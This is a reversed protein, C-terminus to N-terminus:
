DDSEYRKLVADGWLEELKYFNRIDERFVHVVVDFYDILIWESNEYGERHSPKIYCNKQVIELVNDYIADVQTSSQADCLVFYQSVSDVINRLDLSIINKAKKDQMAAVVQKLINKADDKGAKGQM